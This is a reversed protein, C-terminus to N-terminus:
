EVYKSSRSRSVLYMITTLEIGTQHNMVISRDRRKSFPGALNQTSLLVKIFGIAILKGQDSLSDLSLVRKEIGMKKVM